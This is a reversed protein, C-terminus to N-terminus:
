SRRSQARPRVAYRRLLRLPRKVLRTVLSPPWPDGPACDAPTMTTAVRWLYRLREVRTDRSHWHDGVMGPGNPDLRGDAVRAEVRAAAARARAGPVIAEPLAAGLLAQALALAGATAVWERQRRARREVEHWDVDDRAMVHAIDCLWGLRAWAHRYGHTALHVIADPWGLTAVDCGAVTAMQRDRWLQDFPPVHPIFATALRTHVEITVGDARAFVFEHHTRAQRTFDAGTWGRWMPDPEFGLTALLDAMVGLDTPAVLLDVDNCQRAGVDGHLLTALVVGKLALVRLGAADCAAQVTALAQALRLAQMAQGRRAEALASRVPAPWDDAAALATVHVLLAHRAARRTVIQARMAEDGTAPLLHRLVLARLGPVEALM